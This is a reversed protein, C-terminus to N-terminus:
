ERQQGDLYLEAYGKWGAFKSIIRDATGRLHCAKPAGRFIPVGLYIFLLAASGITLTDRFYGRNILFANSAVLMGDVLRAFFLSIMLTCYILLALSIILLLPLIFSM